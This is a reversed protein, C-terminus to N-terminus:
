GLELAAGRWAGAGVPAGGDEVEALFFELALEGPALGRVYALDGLRSSLSRICGYNIPIWGPAILSAFRSPV